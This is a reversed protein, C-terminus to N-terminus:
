DKKNIEGIKIGKKNYINYSSPSANNASEQINKNLEDFKKNLAREAQQEKTGNIAIDAIEARLSAIEREIKAHDWDYSEKQKKLKYLFLQASTYYNPITKLVSNVTKVPESKEVNTTKVTEKPQEVPRIDKGNKTAKKNKSKSKKNIFIKGFFSSIKGLIGKPKKNKQKSDTKTQKTKITTTKTKSKKGKAQNDKELSILFAESITNFVKKYMYSIKPYLTGYKENFAKETSDKKDVFRNNKLASLYYWIDYIHYDCVSLGEFETPLDELKAIRNDIDTILFGNKTKFGEIGNKEIFELKDIDQNEYVFINDTSSFIKNLKSGFSGEYFVYRSLYSLDVNDVYGNKEKVEMKSMIIYKAGTISVKELHTGSVFRVIKVKEDKTGISVNKITKPLVIEKATSRISINELCSDKPIILENIIFDYCEFTKLSSPITLKIENELKQQLFDNAVSVVGEPIEMETINNPGVYAMLIGNEVIYDSTNM